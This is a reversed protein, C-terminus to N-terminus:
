FTTGLSIQIAKADAGATNGADDIKGVVTSLFVPGLNYGISLGTIKEDIGVASDDKTKILVAGVSLTPTVTYALGYEKSKATATTSYDGKSQQYAGTIAGMTYRVGESHFKIDRDAGTGEQVNRSILVDLGKVGLDGRFSMDKFSNSTSSLEDNMSGGTDGLASFNESADPQYIFSLKGIGLDQILGIGFGEVSGKDDMKDTYKSAISAGAAGSSASHNMVHDVRAPGGVIDSLQVDSPKLHDASFTFTTKTSPSIIDIYNNEYHAKGFSVASGNVVSGTTCTTGAAQTNQATCVTSSSGQKRNLDNGDFEVSFGAAYELGGFNLKGKNAINIQTEKVMRSNSGLDADSSTSKLGIRMNGGVTTQANSFATTILLASATALAIKTNKM